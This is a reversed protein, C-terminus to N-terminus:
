ARARAGGRAARRPQKLSMPQTAGVQTTGVAARHLLSAEHCIAIWCDLSLDHANEGPAFRDIYGKLLHPAVWEVTGPAHGADALEIWLLTSPGYRRLMETLGSAEEATVPEMGHYIFIKEGLELDEILKRILLPLRKVERDRIAEPTMEGALVWAHYLLGFKRDDVMYERGNESLQIDLNNPDALGEFRADLAAMLKPLPVSAFRFLGLPEAGCQRQVLGFECNQGLSEFGMILNKRDISRAKAPDDWRFVARPGALAPDGRSPEASVGAEAGGDPDEAIDDGHFIEIKEFAVALLRDDAAGSVEIPRAADPLEFSLEMTADGGLVAAPLEYDLMAVDRLASAGIVIGNVTTVIRQEPLKEKVVFPALILRLRYDGGGGPKPIVLRSTSAATWTFKEEPRAWGTHEYQLLNGDVNFHLTFVADAQAHGRQFAEIANRGQVTTASRRPRAAFQRDAADRDAILHAAAEEIRGSLVPGVLAEAIEGGSISSRGTEDILHTVLNFLKRDQACHERMFRVTEEDLDALALWHDSLNHRSDSRINWREALWTAYRATTTVEVDHILLNQMATEFTPAGDNGLYFCASNPLAIESCRLIRQALARLEHLSPKDPLREIELAALVEQTDPEVGVPDHRLRTIAYNAQSLMTEMPDRIVTFIREGASSNVMELYNGLIMHGYIFLSEYHPIAKVIASLSQLFESESVWLLDELIKPLMLRGPAVNLILDTGACKPIHIFVDRRKEPFALLFRSLVHERFEASLLAAKFHERADYDLPPLAHEINEPRRGHVVRYIHEPRVGGVDLRSALADLGESPEYLALCEFLERTTRPMAVRLHRQERILDRQTPPPLNAQGIVPNSGIMRSDSDDPM